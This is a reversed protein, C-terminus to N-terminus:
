QELELKCLYWASCILLVTFAYTYARVRQWMSDLKETDMETLGQLVSLQQQDCRMWQSTGAVADWVPQHSEVCM